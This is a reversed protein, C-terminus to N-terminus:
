QANISVLSSRFRCPNQLIRIILCAIYIMETIRLIEVSPESGLSRRSTDLKEEDCPPACCKYGVLRNFRQM